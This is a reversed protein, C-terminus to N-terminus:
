SMCAFRLFLSNRCIARVKEGIETSDGAPLVALDPLLACAEIVRNYREEDFPSGFLVNERLSMNQIWAQQPAYCLSGDVFIRGSTKQM